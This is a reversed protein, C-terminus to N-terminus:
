QKIYTYTYTHTHTHTHTHKGLITSPVPSVMSSLDSVNGMRVTCETREWFFETFTRIIEMPTDFFLRRELKSFLFM